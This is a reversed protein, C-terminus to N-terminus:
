NREDALGMAFADAQCGPALLRKARRRLDRARPAQGRAEAWAARLHLAMPRAAPFARAFANLQRIAERGFPALSDSDARTLTVLAMIQGIFTNLAYISLMSAERFLRQCLRLESLALETRGARAFLWAGVGHYLLQTNPDVVKAALPAHNQFEDADVDGGRRLTIVATGCVGWIEAAAEQVRAGSQEAQRWYDLAKRLNGHLMNTMALLSTCEGWNRYQKLAWYQAQGLTGHHEAGQLDGRSLFYLCLQEHAWAREFRDGRSIVQEARRAYRLAREQFPTYSLVLAASAMHATLNGARDLNVSRLTAAVFRARKGEYFYVQALRNHLRAIDETLAQAPTRASHFPLFLRGFAGILTGTLRGEEIMTEGHPRLAAVTEVRCKEHEGLQFFAETLWLRWRARLADPLGDAALVIKLLAAGERFWGQLRYVTWLATVQPAWDAISGHEFCHRFALSLDSIQRGIDLLSEVRDHEVFQEHARRLASMFYEAHRERVAAPWGGMKALKEAGVSRLLPHIELSSKEARRLLSKSELQAITTLSCDAVYEAADVAFPGPFISFAAFARREAPDLLQWSYDLVATMNRHRDPQTNGTPDRLLSLDHLLRSAVEDCNLTPLWRAALILALPYGDVAQCIRVVADMNDQLDFGSDLRRAVQHFLEVAPFDRGSEPDEGPSPYDLGDIKIIWETPLGLQHRTTVLVRVGKSHRTLTALLDRAPVFKEFNDLILLVRKDSLTRELAARERGPVFSIAMVELVRRLLLTEFAADGVPELDILSVFYVGDAFHRRLTRGVHTALHTKGAGGPGVISVIRGSESVLLEELRQQEGLRNVTPLRLRSDIDPLGHAGHAPPRAATHDTAQNSSRDVREPATERTRDRLEQYLALTAADPEADLEAALVQKCTEFQALAAPRDGLRMFTEM